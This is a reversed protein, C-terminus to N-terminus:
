VSTRTNYLLGELRNTTMASHCLPLTLAGPMKKPGDGGGMVHHTSQTALLAGGDCSTTLALHRISGGCKHPDHQKNPVHSTVHTSTSKSKEWKAEHFTSQPSPKRDVRTWKPLKQPLTFRPNFDPNHFCFYLASCVNGWKQM